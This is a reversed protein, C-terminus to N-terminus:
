NATRAKFNEHLVEVISQSLSHEPYATIAKLFEGSVFITDLVESTSSTVVVKVETSNTENSM